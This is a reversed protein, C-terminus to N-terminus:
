ACELDRLYAETNTWETKGECLEEKVLRLNEKLATRDNNAGQLEEELKSLQKKM